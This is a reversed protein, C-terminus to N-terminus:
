GADDRNRGGGEAWQLRVVVLLQTIIFHNSGRSSLSERRREEVEVKKERLLNGVMKRELSFIKM